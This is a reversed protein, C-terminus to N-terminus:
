GFADLCGMARMPTSSVKDEGIMIEEITDCEGLQVDEPHDFTSVIEGGTVAALRETGDFDAHEIVM